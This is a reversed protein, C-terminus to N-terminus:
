GFAEGVSLQAAQTIVHGTEPGGIVLQGLTRAFVDDNVPQKFVGLPHHLHILLSICLAISVSM